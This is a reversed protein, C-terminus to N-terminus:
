SIQALAAPLDDLAAITLSPATPFDFALKRRNVCIPSRGFTGAGAVDWGNSSLIAIEGAEGLAEITAVLEVGHGLPRRPDCQM